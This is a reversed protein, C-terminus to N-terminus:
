QAISWGDAEALMRLRKPISDVLKLCDAQSFKGYFATAREKLVEVDINREGPRQCFDRLLPWVQEIPNLDPSNGPWESKPIFGFRQSDLWHQVPNAKHAPAGDQQFLWNINGFKAEVAAVMEKLLKLYTRGNISGIIFFPGVLGVATLAGYVHLVTDARRVRALPPVRDDPLVWLGDNHRNPVHTGSLPTSDSWVVRRWWARTRHAHRARYALRQDRNLFTVAPGVRRVRWRLNAEAAIKRITPASIVDTKSDDEANLVRIVDGISHRNQRCGRVLPLTGRLLEVVHARRADCIRNHGGHTAVVSSGRIITRRVSSLSMTFGRRNRLYQHIHTNTWMPYRAHVDLVRERDVKEEASNGGVGGQLGAVDALSYIHEHQPM